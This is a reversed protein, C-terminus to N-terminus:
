RVDASADGLPQEKWVRELLMAILVGVLLGNGAIYQVVTPLGIFLDAPLFMIGIGLLLAIGTITLRRETLAERMIARMGLGVMPVFVALEVAYAVPAPLRTLLGVVGPFFSICIMIVGGALFPALRTQGTMRVFGATGGLPVIGVTSFTASLVHAIGGVFTGRKFPRPDQSTKGTLVQEMSETAALTSSLLMLVLPVTSIAMGFDFQPVGWAFWQPMSFWAVDRITSGGMGILSFLLWGIIIGILVAYSKWWGRGWVTLVLVLVFVGLALLSAVAQMGQMPGDGAGLMGKLFVGGLQFSLLLMFTGTVLPTFWGTIRHAFGSVVFLVFGAVLMGGELIRLTTGVDSGQRVAMDGLIVFVSLWIGAPGDAIPMRHGWVGQLVSAIGAVLFTRQMLGAIEEASLQYLGGIVIPIPIAYVLLYVFWQIAPLTQNWGIARSEKYM